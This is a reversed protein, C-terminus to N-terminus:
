SEASSVAALRDPNMVPYFLLVNLSDPAKSPGRKKGAYEGGEGWGGIRNYVRIILNDVFKNDFNTILLSSM